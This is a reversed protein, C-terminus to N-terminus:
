TVIKEATITTRRFNRRTRTTKGHSRSPVQPAPAGVQACRRDTAHVADQVLAFAAAAGRFEGLAGIFCAAHLGSMFGVVVRQAAYSAFVAGLVAVGVSAGVMRAANVLGSVMGSRESPVSAMATTVLPATKPGLGLGITLLAAAIFAYGTSATMLM